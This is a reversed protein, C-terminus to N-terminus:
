RGDPTMEGSSTISADFIQGDRINMSVKVNSYENSREATLPAPKQYNVVGGRGIGCALVIGVILILASVALKIITNKDLHM